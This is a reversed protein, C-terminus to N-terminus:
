PLRQAETEEEARQFRRTQLTVTLIPNTLVYSECNTTGKTNQTVRIIIIIDIGLTSGWQTVLTEVDWYPISPHDQAPCSVALACPPYKSPTQPFSKSNQNKEPWTSPINREM